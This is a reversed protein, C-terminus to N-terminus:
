RSSKLSASRLGTKFPLASSWPWDEPRTCLGAKVPNRHIYEITANFHREDRMFRDWYGPQWFRFARFTKSPTKASRASREEQPLDAAHASAWRGSYAKWSQVINALPINWQQILVHVHNPMVCWALLRYRMGDARLFGEEVVRAMAPQRLACSGMGADLWAEIQVRRRQDREDKSVLSQALETEILILKERPLSDALRFTIAQVLHWGDLHPLHRHMPKASSATDNM